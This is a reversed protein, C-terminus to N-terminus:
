RWWQGRTIGRVDEAETLLLVAKPIPVVILGLPSDTTCTVLWVEAVRGRGSCCLRSPAPWNTRRRWGIRRLPESIEHSDRWARGRPHPTAEGEVGRNWAGAVPPPGPRASHIQAQM